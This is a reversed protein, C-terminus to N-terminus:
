SANLAKILQLAPNEPAWLTPFIELSTFGKATYFERTEAYAASKSTQAVTKVQLFKVKRQSLWQEAHSLLTSGYGKNRSDALIAMCHLEWSDKFHELLTVFGIIMEEETIAFTPHRATDEAYMLLSEEIGFWAPLSRLVTKCEAVRNLNPGILNMRALSNALPRRAKAADLM